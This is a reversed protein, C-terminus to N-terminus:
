ELDFLKDDNKGDSDSDRLADIATAKVHGDLWLVNAKKQHRPWVYGYSARTLPPAGTWSNPPNIALYGMVLQNSSASPGWISDTLLVTDAPTQAAALSKGRSCSQAAFSSMPDIDPCAPTVSADATAPALYRWNYGYSPFLGWLYGFSPNKTDRCAGGCLAGSYEAVDAPSHFLDRTKIYPLVLYPWRWAGFNDPESKAATNSYYLMPLTEDYDQAYMQFALGIQKLNSLSTTQRAKDRAQAFVPFLIAALIAIIAVVVLLEILTFGPIRKRTDRSTFARQASFRRRRTVISHMLM